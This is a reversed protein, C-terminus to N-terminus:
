SHSVEFFLRHVQLPRQRVADEFDNRNPGLLIHRGSRGNNVEPVQEDGYPVIREWESMKADACKWLDAM